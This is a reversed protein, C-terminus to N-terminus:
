WGKRVTSGATWGPLAKTLPHEDSLPYVRGADELRELRLENPPHSALLYTLARRLGPAYGAAAAAADARYEQARWLRAQAPLVGHRVTVLVSWFLIRVLVQVPRIRAAHLAKDALEYAVYLPLAVGKAWAMAIADGDRWHALEHALVGGIQERDYDLQELLGANIVIHRIGAAANPERRDDVLLRPVAVLGLRDAAETLIPLLWDAERQSLRRAGGIRLRAAETVTSWAVYLGGVVLAVLVQGLLVAVPWVPDGAYLQRWPYAATMVALTLAGNVMGLLGGVIGGLQAAATPLLEGASVPLPFVYGLLVDIRELAATGILTGSVVGALGGVLGGVGGMLLIMPVGFWAGVIGALTGPVNRGITARVWSRWGPGRAARGPAAMPVVAELLVVDPVPGTAAAPTLTAGCHPCSTAAPDPLARGCQDCFVPWGEGDASTLQLSGGGPRRWGKESNMGTASRVAIIEGV